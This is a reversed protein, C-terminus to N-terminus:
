APSVAAGALCSLWVLRLVGGLNLSVSRPLRGQDERGGLYPIQWNLARFEAIFWFFQGAEAPCNKTRETLWELKRRDLAVRCLPM